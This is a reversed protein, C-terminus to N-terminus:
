WNVFGISKKINGINARNYDWLSCYYPLPYEINLNLKSYTIQHHYNSHLSPCVGSDVVLDPQGTFILDICSLTQKLFHAPQSIVQHFGHLTTLFELQTGEIATKNRVWWVSSRVNFAGLIISLLSNCSTTDSLVKEFNSVFNEFEFVNQSPSRYALGIYGKSNQIYSKCIICESFSLSIAIRVGLTERYIYM